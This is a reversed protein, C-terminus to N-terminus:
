PEYHALSGSIFHYTWLSGTEDSLIVRNPMDWTLSAFSPDQSALYPVPRFDALNMRVLYTLGLPCNDQSLLYAVSQNDPSWAIPGPLMGSVPPPASGLRAGSVWWVAVEGDQWAALRLGDPSIQAAGLRTVSWDSTDVRLLPPQWYGCGDPVGFAADTFYFYRSTPSWFRGELGYAGLGGCTILHTYVTHDNGTRQDHVQLVDLAYNEVGLPLCDYSFVRAWWAGDPSVHSTRVSPQSAAQLTAPLDATLTSTPGVIGASNVAIDLRDFREAVEALGHKVAGESSIDIQMPFVKCERATRELGAEDLDFIVVQGGEAAIRQAIAKGIGSAGGTVVAVRSEFRNM